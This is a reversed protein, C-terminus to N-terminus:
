TEKRLHEPPKKLARAVAERTQANTVATFGEETLIGQARQVEEQDDGFLLIPHHCNQAEWGFSRLKERFDALPIDVQVEKRRLTAIRKSAHIQLSSMRPHRAISRIEEADLPIASPASAASGRPLDAAGGLDLIPKLTAFAKWHRSSKAILSSTRTTRVALVSAMVGGKRLYM